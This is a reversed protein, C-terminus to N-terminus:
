YYTIDLINYLYLTNPVGYLSIFNLGYHLAEVRRAFNIKTLSRRRVHRDIGTHRRAQPQM